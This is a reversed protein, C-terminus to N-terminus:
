IINVHGYAMNYRALIEEDTKVSERGTTRAWERKQKLLWGLFTEKKYFNECSCNDLNLYPGISNHTGDLKSLVKSLSHFFITYHFQKRLILASDYPQEVYEEYETEVLEKINCPCSEDNIELEPFNLVLLFCFDWVDYESSFSTYVWLRKEFKELSLTKQRELKDQVSNHLDFIFIVPDAEKAIPRQNLFKTFSIRCYICPLIHQLSEIVQNTLQRTEEDKNTRCNRTIDTLIAWLKPGFIYTDM